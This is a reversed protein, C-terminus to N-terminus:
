YIREGETDSGRLLTSNEMEKEYGWETVAPHPSTTTKRCVAICAKDERAYTHKLTATDSTPELAQISKIVAAITCGWGQKRVRRDERGSVCCSEKRLLNLRKWEKTEGGTNKRDWRERWM